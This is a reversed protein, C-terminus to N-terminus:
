DERPGEESSGTSLEEGKFLRRVNDRHTILLLLPVLMGWALNRWDGSGERFYLLFPFAIGTSLTAISFKKWIFLTIAYVVIGLTAAQPALAFMAGLATAAGKGGRFKLFPSLVHGLFAAFGVWAMVGITNQAFVPHVLKEAFHGVLIVPVYGKFVDIGLTASAWKPGLVRYVNSAGPNGSGHETIDIEAVRKSVIVATPLSGVLFSLITLSLLILM